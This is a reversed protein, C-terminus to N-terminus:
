YLKMDIIANASTNQNAYIKGVHFINLFFGIWLKTFSGGDQIQFATASVTLPVDVPTMDDFVM